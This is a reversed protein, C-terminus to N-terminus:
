QNDRPAFGARGMLSGDPKNHLSQPPSPLLPKPKAARYVVSVKVPETMTVNMQKPKQVEEELRKVRHNLDNMIETANTYMNQNRQAAESVVKELSSISGRMDGAADNFKKYDTDERKMYAFLALVFLGAAALLLMGEVFNGKKV